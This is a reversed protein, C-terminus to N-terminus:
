GEAPSGSLAGFASTIHSNPAPIRESRRTASIGHVPRGSDTSYATAGPTIQRNLNRTGQLM